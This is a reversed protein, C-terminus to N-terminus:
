HCKENHINSKCWIETSVFVVDLALGDQTNGDDSLQSHEVYGGVEQFFQRFYKLNQLSDEVIIKKGDWVRYEITWVDVVIERSKLSNEITKLVFMEAGEVDLSFYNIRRQKIYKMVSQLRFCPATITQYSKKRTLINEHFLTKLGSVAGKQFFTLEKEESICACLRWAMRQLKDVKECNIPNADILLGSWNHNRELWLTNSYTIGDFAGMEVFFGNTIPLLKFVLEDQGAQSFTKNNQQATSNAKHFSRLYPQFALFEKELIAEESMKESPLKNMFYITLTVIIFIAITKRPRAAM